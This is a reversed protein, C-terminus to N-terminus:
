VREKITLERTIEGEQSIFADAVEKVEGAPRPPISILDGLRDHIISLVGFINQKQFADLGLADAFKFANRASYAADGVEESWKWADNLPVICPSASGDRLRQENTPALALCTHWGDEDKFWTGYATIEGYAAKWHYRTLDLVTTLKDVM